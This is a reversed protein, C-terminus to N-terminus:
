SKGYRKKWRDVAAQQDSVDTTSNTTAARGPGTAQSERAIREREKRAAETKVSSLDTAKSLRSRAIDLLDPLADPDTWTEVAARKGADTTPRALKEKLVTMIQKHEEETVKNSTYFESQKRIEREQQLDSELKNQRKVIPDDDDDETTVEARADKVTTDLESANKKAQQERTFDRQSDRIEQYAQRQDDNEPKPMKRKEAWDDLDDDFKSAPTDGSKTSDDAPKDGDDATTDTSKSADDLNDGPNATQNDTETVPAPPTVEDGPNDGSTTSTTPM